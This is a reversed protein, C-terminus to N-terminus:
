GDKKGDLKDAKAASSTSHTEAPKSTATLSALLGSSRSIHLLALWLCLANILYHM